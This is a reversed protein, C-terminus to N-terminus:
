APGFVAHRPDGLVGNHKSLQLINLQHCGHSAAVPLPAGLKQGFQLPRIPYIFLTQTALHQRM